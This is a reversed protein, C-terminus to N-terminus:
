DWDTWLSVETNKRLYLPHKPTGTKNKGLCYVRSKYEKLLQIVNFGRNYLLGHNGWCIIIKHSSECYDRIHLDIDEYYHDKKKLLAPNTSRLSFINLMHFYGYGWSRAWESCKHVTPDDKEETATSPNLGIFSISSTNNDDIINTLVHRYNECDSYIARSYLVNKKEYSFKEIM